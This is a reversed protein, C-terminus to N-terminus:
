WLPCLGAKRSNKSSSALDNFGGLSVVSSHPDICFRSGNGNKMEYLYARKGRTNIVSSAQDDMKKALKNSVGKGDIKVVQGGFDNDAFVCLTKEPCLLPVGASAEGGLSALMALCGGTLALTVLMRRPSLQFSM